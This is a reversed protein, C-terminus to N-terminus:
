KKGKHKDAYQESRKQWRWGHAGCSSDRARDVHGGRVPEGCHLCVRRPRGARKANQKRAKQQKVSNVLGGLRGIAAAAARPDIPETSSKKPM